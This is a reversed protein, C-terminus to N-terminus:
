EVPCPQVGAEEERIHVREILWGDESRALSLERVYTVVSDDIVEGTEAQVQILADVTCEVALAREGDIAVSIVEVSSPDKEPERVAIGQEARHSLSNAFQELASGTVHEELKEPEYEGSLVAAVRVDYWGEVVMAIEDEDSLEPETTAPSTTTPTPPDSREEDSGCSAGTAVLCLVFAPAFLRKMTSWSLMFICWFCSASRRPRRHRVWPHSPNCRVPPGIGPDLLGLPLWEM